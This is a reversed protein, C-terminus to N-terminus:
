QHNKNRSAVLYCILVISLVILVGGFAIIWQSMTLTM